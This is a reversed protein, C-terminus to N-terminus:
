KEEKFFCATVEDPKVCLSHILLKMEELEFRSGNSFRDRLVSIEIGSKESLKNLNLGKTLSKALLHSYNYM